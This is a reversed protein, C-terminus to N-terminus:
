SQRQAALSHLQDWRQSVEQPRDIAWQLTATVGADDSDIVAPMGNRPGSSRSRRFRVAPRHGLSQALLEYAASYYSAVYLDSQIPQQTSM